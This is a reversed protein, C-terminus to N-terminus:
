LVESPYKYSICNFKLYRIEFLKAYYQLMCQNLEICSFIKM